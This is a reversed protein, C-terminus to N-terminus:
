RQWHGIDGWTPRLPPTKAGPATAQLGGSHAQTPPVFLQCYPLTRPDIGAVQDWTTAPDPQIMAFDTYNQSVIPANPPLASSGSFYFSQPHRYPALTKRVRDFTPTSDFAYGFMIDDDKTRDPSVGTQVPRGDVPSIWFSYGQVKGNLRDSDGKSYPLHAIFDPRPPHNVDSFLCVKPMWKPRDQYTVFYAIDGLSIFSCSFNNAFPFIPLCFKEYHEEMAGEGSPGSWTSDYYTIGYSTQYDAGNRLPAPPKGAYPPPYKEYGNFVRYMNWHSTWYAPYQPDSPEHPQRPYVCTPYACPSASPPNHVGYTSYIVPAPGADAAQSTAGLNPMLMLLLLGAMPVIRRQLMDEGTASKVTKALM